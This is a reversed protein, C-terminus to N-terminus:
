NPAAWLVRMTSGVKTLSVRHPKRKFALSQKVHINDSYLGLYDHRDCMEIIYQKNAKHNM